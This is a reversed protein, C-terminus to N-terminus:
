SERSGHALRDLRELRPGHADSRRGREAAAMRQALRRAPRLQLGRAPHAQESRGFGVLDPALVRLGAATLVPIMHRYLYSWTPQGHMCLVIEGDPPGEDIHHIRLAAGEGDDVETYHPEFRFGPLDRFRDDPTRLLKM